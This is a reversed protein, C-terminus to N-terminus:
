NAVALNYIKEVVQELSMGNTDIKHAGLAPKLPSHARQKDHEDRAKIEAMLTSYDVQQGQQAMEKCRRRAREEASAELYVKLEAKPLVVTGIDRGVMVAGGKEAREVYATQRAAMAKRVGAVRSVLPVEREVEPARIASGPYQGDVLVHGDALEGSTLEIKIDNALRILNTEDKLDIGLKLAKWTLARYMIGTDIFCYGLRRALARGVSSKGAAVPGDIAIIRTQSM